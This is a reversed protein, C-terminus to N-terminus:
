VLNDQLHQKDGGRAVKRFVIKDDTDNYTM